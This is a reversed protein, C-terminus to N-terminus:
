SSRSRHSSWPFRSASRDARHRADSTLLSYKGAALWCAMFVALEVLSGVAFFFLVGANLNSVIMNRGIPLVAYALFSALM